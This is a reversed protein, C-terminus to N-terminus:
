VVMYDDDKSKLKSKKIYKSPATAYKPELSYTIQNEDLFKTLNNRQELDVCLYSMLFKTIDPTVGAVGVTLDRDRIQTIIDDDYVKKLNYENAIIHVAYCQTFDKTKEDPEIDIKELITLKTLFFDLHEDSEFNDKTLNSVVEQYEINLKNLRAKVVNAGKKNLCVIGYDEGMAVLGVQNDDFKKNHMKRFIDVNCYKTDIVEIFFEREKLEKLFLKRYEKLQEEVKM